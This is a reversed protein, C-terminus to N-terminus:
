MLSVVVNYWFQDGALVVHTAIIGNPLPDPIAGAKTVHFTVNGPTDFRTVFSSLIGKASLLAGTNPGVNPKTGITVTSISEKITVGEFSAFISVPITQGIRIGQVQCLMSFEYEGPTDIYLTTPTSGVLSWGNAAVRDAFHIVLPSAPNYVPVRYINNTSPNTTNSYLSVTPRAPASAGPEGNPGM